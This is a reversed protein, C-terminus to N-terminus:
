RPPNGDLVTRTAHLTSRLGDRLGTAPAWGLRATTGTLDPRRGTTETTDTDPASVIGNGALAVILAALEVTTIAAHDIGLDVPEPMDSALIELLGEAVDDIHVPYWLRHPDTVPLVDGRLAATCFRAILGGDDSGYVTYPRAIVADVGRHQYAATVTEVFRLGETRTGATAHDSDHDLGDPLTPPDYVHSSSTVVIRARHRGALDLAHFTSLAATRLQPAPGNEVRGTPGPLHVIGTVEQLGTFAATTTIDAHRFKFRPDPRLATLNTRRDHSLTDIATVRAGDNLLAACVRSGLSGTGGTVVVHSSM